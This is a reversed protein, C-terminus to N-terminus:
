PKKGKGKGPNGREQKQQQQKQAQPPREQKPQPQPQARPAPAPRAPAAVREGRPQEQKVPRAAREAQPARQQPQPRQQEPEVRRAERQEQGRGRQEVPQQQVTAKGRREDRVEFKQGKAHDPANNVRMRKALDPRFAPSVPTTSTVVTTVNLKKAIGPPIDVKGRGWASHVVANRLPSVLLPDLVPNVSALMNRDAKRARRWDVGRTFDDVSVVTVAGPV